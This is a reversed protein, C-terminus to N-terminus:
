ISDNLTFPIEGHKHMTGRFKLIEITRTRKELELVNRLIIVNDSVFEEVGFRTIAGYEDIREATIIATVDMARLSAKVKFLEGRIINPESFRNFLSGISDVSVRKAKITDVAFKIRAILAGLDYTGSVLAQDSPDPSADVFKWMGDEEWKRVDWGLGILNERIDEASEEFTVFVASEGDKKIGNALFQAAFITKASGSTGTVLTARGAPLGGFSIEDFGEIGTLIKKLVNDNKKM